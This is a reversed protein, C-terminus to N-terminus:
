IVGKDKLSKQAISSLTKRSMWDRDTKSLLIKRLRLHKPTVELMEDNKLFSLAYDLTLPLVANLNTQTIEDHKMRVASQHRAKTPNVELDKDYKNVGIIMGEYVDEGPKVFLQGREQISNLSYGMATGTSSSILSGKEYIQGDNVYPVYDVVSHHLIATGKTATLLVRRLGLIYRTLIRYTFQTQGNDPQMELMEAKRTSMEQTVFGVYEDPVDIFAEEVPECDVGDITKHIVVPKRVQFEFDERRLTEILISLQLEGRGAVYYTGDEGKRIRLSINREKERDLRQYLLRSTVNKGDRGVFPSTNAEFRVEVSPDSIKILPIPDPNDASCLTAGIATSDIGTIGVIDGTGGSEVDEFILGRRVLIRKVQGSAVRTFSPTNHLEISESANEPKTLADTTEPVVLTVSDGVSVTGRTIRGILYRGQHSDYELSSVQMQFSGEPEGSPSPIHEIIADLLVRMDGPVSDPQTLDGAPIEAFAKGERGIAYFVPFDLQNADHALLLFLDQIRDLTRPINALKQDIKNIVVIPILGMDLAKKLVFKTQPMPGERADVLLLCGDAMNLTREVEGGFDSHGPTDIINLKYGNYQVAINKANITIGKEKELEGSDLILEQQMEAENDRFVHTQKLFADVLTTKGHDVHAIIAINRINSQLFANKTDSLKPVPHMTGCHSAFTGSFSRMIVQM